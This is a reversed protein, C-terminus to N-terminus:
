RATVRNRGAHKSLYMRSDAAEILAAYNSGDAGLQAVGISVTFSINAKTFIVVEQEVLRRLREAM